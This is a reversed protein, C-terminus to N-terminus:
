KFYFRLKTLGSKIFTGCNIFGLECDESKILNQIQLKSYWSIRYISATQGIVLLCRGVYLDYEIM